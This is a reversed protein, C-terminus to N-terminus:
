LITRCDTAKAFTTWEAAPSMIFARMTPPSGFDMIAILLLAAVSLSSGKLGPADYSKWSGGSLRQLGLGTGRRGIGAWMWGDADRALDRVGASGEARKLVEPFYHSSATPTWHSVGRATSMWLGGVQDDVLAEAGFAAFPIGGAENYCQLSQGNVRCLPGERDPARTRTIWVTGNRDEVIANIRGRKDNYNVLRRDKWRAVGGSSGIWLSGDRGGLLTIIRPGPLTDIGPLAWRVFRMGDFRVVDNDMGIWLYGDATQAVANPAGPLVGDQTRWATHGYQTIQRNPDLANALKGVAAVRSM